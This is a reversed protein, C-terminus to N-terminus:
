QIQIYTKKLSTEEEGRQGRGLVAKSFSSGRGEVARRVWESLDEVRWELKKERGRQGCKIHSLWWQASFSEQETIRADMWAM